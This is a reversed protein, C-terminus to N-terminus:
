MVASGVLFYVIRVIRSSAYGFPPQVERATIPDENSGDDCTEAGHNSRHVNPILKELTALVHALVTPLDEQQFFEILREAAVM